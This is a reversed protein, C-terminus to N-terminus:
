KRTGLAANLKSAFDSSRDRPPPPESVQPPPASQPASKGNSSSSSPEEEVDPTPSPAPRGRDELFAAPDLVPREIASVYPAWQPDGHRNGALAARMVDMKSDLDDLYHLLLAERFVPVKPSGFELKGHHSLIMHELLQLLRPPFDPLQCAKEALIKCGIHIHGLLQGESSYGFGREYTLERVKGLDHVIIGAILLDTDIDPYHDAVHRGLKILSLVHEILGGIWAHHIGRGAPARRYGRALTEEAFLAQLLARLHPNKLNAVADLLEAFMEESDRSSTPYFDGIEIQREEVPRLKHITFQLRNHFLQVLGKVRIFDDAEFCQLLEDDVNDWMRAEIEGTRDGLRLNLYPDGSKKQRIEKVHVLLVTDVNQNPQLGNVYISKM